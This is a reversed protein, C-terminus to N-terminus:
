LRGEGNRRARPFLIGLRFGDTLLFISLRSRNLQSQSPPPSQDDRDREHDDAINHSPSTTTGIQNTLANTRGVTVNDAVTSFRYLRTALWPAVLAARLTRMGRAAV